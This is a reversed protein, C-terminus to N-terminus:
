SRRTYGAGRRTTSSGPAGRRGRTEARQSEASPTASSPTANPTTIRAILRPAQSATSPRYAPPAEYDGVGLRDFISGYDPTSSVGAALSASSEGGGGRGGGGGRAALQAALQAKQDKELQAYWNAQALALGTDTLYQGRQAQVKTLYDNWASDLQATSEAPARNLVPQVTQQWNPDSQGVLGAGGTALLQDLIRRRDEAVSM